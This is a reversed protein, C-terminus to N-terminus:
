FAYIWSTKPKIIWQNNKVDNLAGILDELVGNGQAKGDTVAEGITELVTKYNRPDGKIAGKLLGQNIAERYTVGKKYETDLLFLLTERMTKAKRRSKISAENGKKSLAKHESPSRKTFPILGSTNTAM